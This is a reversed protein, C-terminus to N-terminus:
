GGQFFNRSLFDKKVDEPLSVFRASYGCVRVILSQHAEPHSIADELEEKTACNIQLAGIPSEAASRLLAEWLSLDMHGYPLTVNLM